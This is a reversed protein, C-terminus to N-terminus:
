AGAADRQRKAAKWKKLVYGTSGIGWLALVGSGVLGVLSETGTAVVSAALLLLSGYILVASEAIITVLRDCQENTSNM